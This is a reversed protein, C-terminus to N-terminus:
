KLYKIFGENLFKDRRVVEYDNYTYIVVDMRKYLNNVAILERLNETNEINNFMNDSIIFICRSMKDNSGKIMFDSTVYEKFLSVFCSDFYLLEEQGMYDRESQIDQLRMKLESFEKDDSAKLPTEGYSLFITSNYSNWLKDLQKLIVSSVGDEPIYRVYIFTNQANVEQLLLLTFSCVALIVKRM